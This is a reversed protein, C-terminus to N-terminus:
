KRDKVFKVKPNFFFGKFVGMITAKIRSIRNNKSHLIITVINTLYKVSYIIPFVFSYYKRYIYIRNRFMYEYYKIRGIACNVVSDDVSNSKCKHIVESDIVLYSQHKKAIRTSYEVDDAWIFMEAIPLGAEKVVSRKTFFSVFSASKLKVLGDQIKKNWDVEVVPINMYAPENDKYWRVNSCLFGFDDNLKEAAEIFKTITDQKLMTDDDMILFYESKSNSYAYNLGYSFGGAGGLNEELNVPIVHNIDCNDLYEKTGDNSNNNIVFVSDIYDCNETNKLCEKLLKLRNYTVIIISVRKM